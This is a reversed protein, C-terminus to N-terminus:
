GKGNTHASHFPGVYHRAPATVVGYVLALAIIILGVVRLKFGLCPTSLVAYQLESGDRGQGYACAPLQLFHATQTTDM